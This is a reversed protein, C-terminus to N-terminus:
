HSLRKVCNDFITCYNNYDNDFGAASLDLTM